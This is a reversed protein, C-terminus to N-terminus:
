ERVTSRGGDCALLYSAQFTQKGSPTDFLLDVRDDHQTFDILRHGFYTSGVDSTAVCERLVPEMDHQPLNIVFPFRTEDHLLHLKVSRRARNTSREIDGIEDVRVAKSLIKSAAGFRQWIELTRTLTTGAKTESSLGPKAEFLVFPIGYYALGLATTLGVPGAGVIAVPLGSKLPHVGSTM